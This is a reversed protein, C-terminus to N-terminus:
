EIRIVRTMHERTTSKIKVMYVGAPIREFVDMYRVNQGQQLDLKTTFMLAGVMNYTEINVEEAIDSTIDLNIGKSFPNPYFRFEQSSKPVRDTKSSSPVVIPAPTNFEVDFGDMFACEEIMFGNPYTNNYINDRYTGTYAVKKFGDTSVHSIFEDRGHKIETVKIVNGQGDYWIFGYM